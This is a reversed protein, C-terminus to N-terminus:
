SGFIREVRRYTRRDRADFRDNRLSDADSLKKVLRDADRDLQRCTRAPKLRRLARQTTKAFERYFRGHTKEHRDLLRYLKAWKTRERRSVRTLTTPKPMHYSIKLRVKARKVRCGRETRERTIQYSMNRSATAWARRRHQRSYPGKRSMSVAFEATTRGTIRYHTTEERIELDAAAAPLPVVIALLFVCFLGALRDALAPVGM